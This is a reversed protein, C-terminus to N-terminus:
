TLEVPEDTTRKPGPIERLSAWDVSPTATPKRRARMLGTSRLYETVSSMGLAHRAKNLEAWETDTFRITTAPM